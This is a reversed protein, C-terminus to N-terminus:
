QLWETENGGAGHLLYLVPFRKDVKAYDDPLYVTYRYDRGIAASKFTELFVESAQALASFALGILIAFFLRLSKM